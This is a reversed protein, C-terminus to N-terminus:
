GPDTTREPEGRESGCEGDQHVSQSPISSVVPVWDGGHDVSREVARDPGCHDAPDHPGTGSSVSAGDVTEEGALQEDREASEAVHAVEHVEQDEPHAVGVQSGCQREAVVGQYTSPRGAGSSM